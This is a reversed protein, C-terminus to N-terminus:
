WSLPERNHFLGGTPGDDPLTALWVPTDTAQEPTRDTEGAAMRTSIRGPSVANVLINTGRLEVALIRTLANLGAKSVRYAVNTDAMTSISGLHSTINVIRGYGNSRMEVIAAAACRWAGMLNTEMTAHVRELDPGAALQGRDIAIGANNVLVDLRGQQIGVDAFCLAVSVPDTVDLQHGSTVLGKENLERSLADAAQADRATIIVRLGREALETAIARGLGRNAGTVVAVRQPDTM